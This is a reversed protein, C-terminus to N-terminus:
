QIHVHNYLHDMCYEHNGKCKSCYRFELTPDDLETRGCVTCRHIPQRGKGNRYGRMRQGSTDRSGASSDYNQQQGYGNQGYGSDDPGYGNQGYGTNGPGYGNQGYGSNDPGYSNQGYGSNDPGYGNQGYGTNSQGGFTTRDIKEGSRRNQRMFKRYNNRTKRQSRTLSPGKRYLFFFLSMNAASAIIMAGLVVSNGAILVYLLYAGYFIVLYKAKIPILFMFRFEMNPFTLALGLFVSLSIYYTSFSLSYFEVEMPSIAYAIFGAIVTLILGNFIYFDFKFDGWVQELMVGQQYICFLMLLTWISLSSPPMLIWTVIRWVQGRAILTPSFSLLALPSSGTVSGMLQLIYGTVYTVIIIPTLHQIAHSGFKRELRDLINMGTGKTHVDGSDGGRM